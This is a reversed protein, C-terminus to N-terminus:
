HCLRVNNISQALFDGVSGRVRRAGLNEFITAMEQGANAGMTIKTEINKIKFDQFSVFSNKHGEGGFIENFIRCIRAALAQNQYAWIVSVITDEFSYFYGIDTYQLKTKASLELELAVLKTGNQGEVKWYGDPRHGEEPINKPLDISDLRRLEQETIAEMSKRDIGDFVGIQVQNTCIDHIPSESKFGKQKMEPYLEQVVKFSKPTLVWLKNKNERCVYLELYGANKLKRLREYAVKSKSGPYYIRAICATTMVKWRWIFYIIEKDRKTLKLQRVAGGLTKCSLFFERRVLKFQSVQALFQVTSIM